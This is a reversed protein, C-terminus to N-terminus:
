KKRFKGGFFDGITWDPSKKEQAVYYGILYNVKVHTAAADFDFAQSM